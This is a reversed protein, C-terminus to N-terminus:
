LKHFLMRLLHCAPLFALLKHFLMRLLHCAPLFATLKHYRMHLMQYTFFKSYSTPYSSGTNQM